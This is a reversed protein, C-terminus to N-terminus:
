FYSNSKEVRESFEGNMKKGLTGIFILTPNIHFIM